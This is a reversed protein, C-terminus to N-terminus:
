CEEFNITIFYAFVQIRLANMPVVAGFHINKRSHIQLHIECKNKGDM